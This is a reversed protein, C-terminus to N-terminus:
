KTADTKVLIYNCNGYTDRRLGGKAGSRWLCCSLHGYGKGGLRWIDIMVMLRHSMGDNKQLHGGAEPGM